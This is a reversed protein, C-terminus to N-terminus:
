FRINCCEKIWLGFLDSQLELWHFYPKELTETSILGLIQLSHLLLIFILQRCILFCKNLLLLLFLSKRIQGQDISQVGMQFFSLLGGTLDLLINGISWGVTSKRQFNM